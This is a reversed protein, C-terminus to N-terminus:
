SKNTLPRNIRSCIMPPRKTLSEYQTNHYNLLASTQPFEAPGGHPRPAAENHRSQPRLGNRRAPERLRLKIVSCLPDKRIESALMM